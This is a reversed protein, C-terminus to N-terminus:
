EFNLITYKIHDNNKEKPKILYKITYFLTLVAAIITVWVAVYDWNSTPGIGHSISGFATKAKARDCVPCAYTVFNLLIIILFFISKKM